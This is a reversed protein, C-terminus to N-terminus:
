GGGDEDRPDIGHEDTILILPRNGIAGGREGSVFVRRGVRLDAADPHRAEVLFERGAPPTCEFDDGCERLLWRPGDQAVVRALIPEGAAARASDPATPACAVMPTVLMWVM